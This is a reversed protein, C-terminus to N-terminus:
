ATGGQQGYRSVSGDKSRVEWGFATKKIQQFTERRTHFFPPTGEVLNQGAFTFTDVQDDYTPVGERLSRQISGVGLGWGLGVWSARDTGHSGYQLSLSPQLGAVGPAVRIPYGTRAEGGFFDHGSETGVSESTPFLVGHPSREIAFTSDDTLGATALPAFLSNQLFFIATLVAVRRRQKKQKRLSVVIM